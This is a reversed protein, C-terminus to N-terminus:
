LRLEPERTPKSSVGLLMEVHARAIAISGDARVLYRVGMSQLAEIQKPRQKRNTLEIIETDSLTGLM